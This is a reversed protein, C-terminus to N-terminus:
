TGGSISHSFHVQYMVGNKFIARQLVQVQEGPPRDLVSDLTDGESSNVFVWAVPNLDGQESPSQRSPMIRIKQLEGHNKRLYYYAMPMNCVPTRYVSDFGIEHHIMFDTVDNADSCIGTEDNVSVKNSVARAIFFMLFVVAGFEVYLLARSSPGCISETLYAWGAAAGAFYMPLAFLWVRPFPAFRFCLLVVLFWVVSTGVLIRQDASKKSPLLLSLVFGVILLIALWKPLGANWL